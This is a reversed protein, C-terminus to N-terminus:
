YHRWVIRLCCGLAQELLRHKGRPLVKAGLGPNRAELVFRAFGVPWGFNLAELSIQAGRCPAIATLNGFGSQEHCRSMEEAFWPEADAGCSTCHVGLWNGGCDIFQIGESVSCNVEDAGPLFGRLLDAAERQADPTPVYDRQEPIFSM